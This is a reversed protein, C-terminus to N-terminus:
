GDPWLRLLTRLYDTRFANDSMLKRGQNYAYVSSAHSSRGIIRSLEVHGMEVGPSANDRMIVAAISRARQSRGDKKGAMLDNYDAGVVRCSCRVVQDAM